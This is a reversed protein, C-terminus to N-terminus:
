FKEKIYEATKIRALSDYEIVDSFDSIKEVSIIELMKEVIHSIEVFRIREQLFMEVAVENAANLIIANQPRNQMVEKVIRLSPFKKEDPPLFSLKNLKCFDIRETVLSHKQPWFLAVSIPVIMEHNSLQALTSGNIYSVMSHIISEPHIIVEIQEISVPFLYFAEIIELAKNFMTASDISIKKGMKWNPHALAQQITVKELEEYSAHLFPGGSATLILKEVAAENEYDFVQMIANHESDVPILKVKHKKVLELILNGACVLCEKNALAIDSGSSISAIISELGSAGVIAAMVIDPASKAADVLAQKGVMINISHGKLLEKLPQYYTENGIVVIEPKLEIAQKALLQYNTNATLFKVTFFNKNQKLVEITSKGISGTSGFIGITKYKM